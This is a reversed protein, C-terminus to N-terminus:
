TEGKEGQSGYPAAGGRALYPTLRPDSQAQSLVRRAIRPLWRKITALSIDLAAAVETLELGDVHRLVFATRHRPALRDLIEYFRALAERAELDVPDGARDPPEGDSSLGLWRRIWRGRQESKIVRVTISIVFARLASPDRLGPLKRYLRIFIEQIADDIERGPGSARSVLRRVIPYYRDWLAAQAGARQRLCDRVLDEDRMVDFRGEVDPVLSLSVKRDNM